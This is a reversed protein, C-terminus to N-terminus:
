RASFGDRAARELLANAAADDTRLAAADWALKKGRAARLAVNALLVTETLPGAYSFPTSTPQRSVIAQLWERHHGVSAPLSPAPAQWAKKRQEPGISHRNYDSILWGDDGVFLVGNRWDQLGRSNLAEDPRDSGAHWRLTVAPREGRPAFAYECRMGAPACEAHPEPGDARLTTPADLGLAWFPLDVFHCAMDATTGGGFAWYRRWGMPHYDAAFDREPEPGLWLDWALEAPPPSSKPLEKASWDTGNVFVIVERVPGVAGAAIAEVVRHYNENAHIQIGMQTICGKAAAARAIRRAQGVTHTLPKECYVALGRQLALMTAAYHTHDPTSVVVGDLARCAAEDRLVGRFDVVTRAGPFRKAAAALRTGDVDCLVSIHEGAVAALNDGGRGGVGVIMLRVPEAPDRM